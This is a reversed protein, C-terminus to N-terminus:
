GKEALVSEEDGLLLGLREIVDRAAARDVWYFCDRCMKKHQVIGAQRLVRLHHSITPQALGLKVAIESVNNGHECNASDPLMQLIRLRTADGIAWLQTALREEPRPM